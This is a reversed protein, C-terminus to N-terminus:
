DGRRRPQRYDLLAGLSMRWEKMDYHAPSILRSAMIKIFAGVISDHIHKVLIEDSIKSHVLNERRSALLHELLREHARAIMVAYIKAFTKDFNASLYIHLLVHAKEPYAIAWDLNRQVHIVLREFADSDPRMSSAVMEWNSRSIHDLLAKLLAERSGFHYVINSTSMGCSKAIAQFSSAEWGKKGILKLTEDLIQDRSVTKERRERKKTVRM